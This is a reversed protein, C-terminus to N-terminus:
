TVRPLGAVDPRDAGCSWCSAFNPGNEEQCTACQWAPHVLTPGQFESVLETARNELDAPTWVTPWAEGIPVDGRISMLNEGRVTARVGNRTLWDRVLYADAPGTAQYVRVWGRRRDNSARPM